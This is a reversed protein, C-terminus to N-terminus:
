WKRWSKMQRSVDARTLETAQLPVRRGEERVSLEGEVSYDGISMFHTLAVIEQLAAARQEETGDHEIRFRLPVEIWEIQRKSM